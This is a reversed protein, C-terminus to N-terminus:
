SSRCLFFNPLQCQLLIILILFKDPIKKSCIVMPILDEIITWKQSEQTSEFDTRLRFNIIFFIFQQISPQKRAEYLVGQNQGFNEVPPNSLDPFEMLPTEVSSVADLLL